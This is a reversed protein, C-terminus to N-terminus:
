KLTENTIILNFNNVQKTYHLEKGKMYTFIDDNGGFFVPGLALISMAARKGVLFLLWM